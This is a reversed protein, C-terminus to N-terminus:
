YQGTRAVFDIQNISCYEVYSNNSEAPPTCTEDVIDEDAFLSSGVVLSFTYFSSYINTNVAGSVPDEDGQNSTKFALSEPSTLEFRYLVLNRDAEGFVSQLESAFVDPIRTGTNREGLVPNSNDYNCLARAYDPVKAFRIPEFTGDARVTFQTLDHEGTPSPTYGSFAPQYNWIYTYSGTCLRGGQANNFYHLKEAAALELTGRPGLDGPALLKIASPSQAVSDQMDRVTLRAVTNVDKITLGKNYLSILQMGVTMVAMLLTAIFVMALTIEIITFGHQKSQRM